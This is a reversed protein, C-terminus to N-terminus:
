TQRIEECYINESDRWVDCVRLGAKSSIVDVDMETWKGSTVIRIKEGKGIAIRHGGIECWVDRCPAYYISLGHKLVDFEATCTWDCEQFVERGTVANAARLGNLLFTRFPQKTTDYAKLIRGEQGCADISVVFQCKVDAKKCAHVFQSLLSRAEFPQLNAISNGMWLFSIFKHADLGPFSAIWTACDNYTGLLGRIDV